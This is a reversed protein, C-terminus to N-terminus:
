NVPLATVEDVETADTLEEEYPKKYNLDRAITLNVLEINTDDVVVRGIGVLYGNVIATGDGFFSVATVKDLSNFVIDALYFIIDSIVASLTGRAGRLSITTTNINPSMAYDNNVVQINKTMSSDVKEVSYPILGTNFVLPIRGSLPTEISAKSELIKLEEQEQPTTAGARLSLLRNQEETSLITIVSYFLVPPAKIM